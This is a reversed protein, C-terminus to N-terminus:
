CVEKARKRVQDLTVVKHLFRMSFMRKGKLLLRRRRALADSLAVVRNM